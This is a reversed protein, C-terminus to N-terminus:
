LIKNRSWTELMKQGNKFAIDGANPFKSSEFWVLEEVDDNAQEVGAIRQATYCINLTSYNTNNYNYTDMFIGLLTNIKIDLGTEEKAERIAAHEPDEGFNLFGGIIDWKGIGPEIKRKGLLVRGQDDVIITCATPKSNQYFVFGCGSCVLKEPDNQEEYKVACKPCFNYLM